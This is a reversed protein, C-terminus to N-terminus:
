SEQEQLALEEKSLKTYNREVEVKYGMAQLLEPPFRVNERGICRSIYNGTLGLAESARSLTRHHKICWGKVRIGFQTHNM